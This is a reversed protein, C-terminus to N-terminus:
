SAAIQAERVLSGVPHQIAERATTSLDKGRRIMLYAAVAGSVVTTWFIFNRMRLDEVGKSARNPHGTRGASANGVGAPM